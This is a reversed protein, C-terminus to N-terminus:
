GVADPLRELAFHSAVVEDDALLALAPFGIVGFATAVPGAVYEVVVQAVPELAERLSTVEDQEGVLVALVHDRGGPVARARDVFGPLSELCMPCTPSLFGVLTPGRLDGRDVPDGTTTTATFSGVREGATLMMPEPNTAGEISMRILGSQERLRRIMALTLVLNVLGLTGLVLVVVGLDTM